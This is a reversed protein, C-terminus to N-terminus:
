LTLFGGDKKIKIFPKYADVIKGEKALRTAGTIGLNFAATALQELREDSAKPFKKKMEAKFYSLAAATLEVGDLYNKSDVSYTIRGHENEFEHDTNVEMNPDIKITGESIMTGLDDLGWLPGILDGRQFYGNTNNYNTIAADIPGEKAIRSALTNAGIGHKKAAVKVANTFEQDRNFYEQRTAVPKGGIYVRKANDAYRYVPDKGFPVFEVAGTDFYTTVGYDGDFSRGTIDIGKPNTWRNTEPNYTPGVKNRNNDEPSNLSGGEAYINYAERISRIDRYGNQVAVKMYAARDAIPLEEWKAM